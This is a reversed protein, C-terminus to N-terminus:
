KALSWFEKLYARFGRGRIVHPADEPDKDFEPLIYADKFDDFTRIRTAYILKHGFYLVLFLFPGVYAGLIDFALLYNPKLAREQVM